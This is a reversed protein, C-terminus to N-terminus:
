LEEFNNYGLMQAITDRDFWFFDNLDTITLFKDNYTDELIDLITKAENNTISNITDIAGSWLMNRLDNKDNIEVLVKM